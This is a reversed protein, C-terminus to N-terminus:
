FENVLTLYLKRLPLGMVNYYDGRIGIVKTYGFWDQIGYSGAKDLPCFNKIYYNIEEPTADDFSVETMESFCITKSESQVCVSTYVQHTNGALKTLMNFADQEDKPKGIKQNNFWVITDATILIENSNLKRFARAKNIAIHETIKVANYEKPYSEDSDISVLEFDIGLAKLLEKRRPSQSGLFLKKNKFKQELM